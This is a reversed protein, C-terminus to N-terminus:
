IVKRAKHDKFAKLDLLGQLDLPVLPDQRVRLALPVLLRVQLVLRGLRVQLAPQDQLDLPVRQGLPDKSVRFEMNVM